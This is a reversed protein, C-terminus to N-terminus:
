FNSMYILYIYFSIYISLYIGCGVKAHLFGSVGDDGSSAIVTIGRLSLKIAETNFANRLNDSV